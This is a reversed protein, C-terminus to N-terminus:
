ISVKWEEKAGGGGFSVKPQWKEKFQKMNWVRSIAKTQNYTQKYDLSLYVHNPSEETLISAKGSLGICPACPCFYFVHDRSEFLIICWARLEEGGHM